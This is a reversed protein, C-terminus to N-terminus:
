LTRRLPEGCTARLFSSSVIISFRGGDRLLKVGLEMFYANLDALGDFSEYHQEFYSKLARFCNRGCM